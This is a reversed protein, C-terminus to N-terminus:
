SMDAKLAIFAAFSALQNLWVVRSTSRTRMFVRCTERGCFDGVRGRWQHVIKFVNREVGSSHEAALVKLGAVVGADM